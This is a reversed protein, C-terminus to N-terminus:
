WPSPIGKQRGNHQSDNYLITAELCKAGSFSPSIIWGLKTTFVECEDKSLKNEIGGEWIHVWGWTVKDGMWLGCYSISNNKQFNTIAGMMHLFKHLEKLIHCHSQLCEFVCKMEHSTKKKPKYNQVFTFFYFSFPINSWKEEKKQLFFIM